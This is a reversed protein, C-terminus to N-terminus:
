YYYRRRRRFLESLLLIDILDRFLGRRRFPRRFFRFDRDFFRPDRRFGDPNHPNNSEANEHSKAYEALDPYMRCVDDYISDTMQEVMEQTPMMTGYTDMQDCVLVIYPQLKYFVEPYVMQSELMGPLIPMAETPYSPVQNAPKMMSAGTQNLYLDEQMHKNNDM